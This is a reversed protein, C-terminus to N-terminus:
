AIRSSLLLERREDETLTHRVRSRAEAVLRDMTVTADWIRTVGDLSATAIRQGDPSWAVCTVPAAHVGAVIIELGSAADWIRATRDVSATALRTGDPSWALGWVFDEHGELAFVPVGTRVNLVRAFKEDQSSVALREGDPSWAVSSIDEYGEVVVNLAGTRVDWVRLVGVDDGAALQQGDPSLEVTRIKEEDGRLALLEAGTHASWIRATQDFGGSALYQGDTSWTVAAVWDQHGHLELKEGGTRSDWVRVMRDLSGTALRHGDPSWAVGWVADQHGDIKLLEAGTHVDWVRATRDGSATAVRQGDPSWAVDFVERQHGRMVMRSLTHVDWIRATEDLSGTVLRHGDPSWAAGVVGNQHGHLTLLENGSRADWVRATRDRSGTALRTGDLSWAVGWVRDSHGELTLLETGADADWVRATRDDSVTVLRHGDPSWAVDWLGDQHGRLTLLEAGTRADWVRATRDRSGTALRTGDPSWAVGGLDRQHGELTLLEAGTDADWVRAVQDYSSTAVRRGDPSWAVGWVGEQHGRLTLLGIGAHADWVRATRDRSGTLLRTGDPSWAVGWVRDGHGELTLLKTGTDAEWVQVTQDYSATAVRRGDPSWAVHELDRPHGAYILVTRHHLLATALARGALPTCAYEDIAMLALALAYEPDDEVVALARRAISNALQRTTAQDADQSRELFERILAPRDAVALRAAHRLADALRDSHLLYAHQRGSRDWELAWRELDAQWQLDDARTEITQRLPPWHRFLAEHAVEYITETDGDVATGSTLLRAAVFAEAVRRESASLMSRRVPRKTPESESVTVFRLLTSLVPTDPDAAVLEEIVTDARQALAGAVGGLRHYDDAAIVADRGANFYLTQLTYALLPLAAGSGADDVLTHPLGVPHFEVGAKSAPKEIVELLADRGLVGIVVPHTFLRSFEATLFDTLFESRLTALVWLRPDIRLAGDLLSLFTAREGVGVQTILEEAQDVVILVRANKRNEAVRIRDICRVLAQPEGATLQVALEVAAKAPLDQGLMAVLATALQLSPRGGPAFPHIVIWRQRSAVLRPVLGAQVLSSKGAGSSGIIPVFRLTDEPIMPHLREFLDDIERVRGFFVGADEETFSELGPFPPRGSRWVRRPERRDVRYVWVRLVLVVLLLGTLMPLAWDGAWAALWPIKRLRDVTFSSAIGLLAGVVVM